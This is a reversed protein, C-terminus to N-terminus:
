GTLPTAAKAQQRVKKVSESHLKFFYRFPQAATRRVAQM